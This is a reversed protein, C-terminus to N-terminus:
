AAVRGSAGANQSTEVPKMFVTNIQDEYVVQYGADMIKKRVRAAPEAMEPISEYKPHVDCLEVILMRPQWHALDFGMFVKEEYGEVDVVLLDFGPQLGNADLLDNMPLVPVTRRRSSRNQDTTLEMSQYQKLTDDCLTTLSGNQVMEAETKSSGAAVNVVDVLNFRHRSRCRQAYYPSAEVYLGEWGSDALWSTNSFREGDYAGVEVFQGTSASSRIGGADQYLHERVLKTLEPVQCTKVPKSETSSAKVRCWLGRLCSVVCRFKQGVTLHVSASALDETRMFLVDGHRRPSMVPEFGFTRLHSELESFLVGSEYYAVTSAECVVARVSRLLNRAGQLVLLEAGQVDVLLVDWSTEERKEVLTDLTQSLVTESEGTQRVKSWRDELNKTAQFISNSAGNNTFRHLQMSEGDHNTLLAHDVWHTAAGEHQEIVECLRAHTEASGEIWWVKEYGMSEYHSREQALHAGVHIMTKPRWHRPRLGELLTIPDSKRRLYKKIRSLMLPNLDTLQM